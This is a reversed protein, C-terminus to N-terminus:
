KKAAPKAKAQGAKKPGSKPAPKKPAPDPKSAKATLATITKPATALRKQETATLKM